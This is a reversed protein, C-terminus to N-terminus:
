PIKFYQKSTQNSTILKYCYKGAELSQIDLVYSGKGKTFDGEYLLTTKLKDLNELELRGREAKPFEYYIHIQDEERIAALFNAYDKNLTGRKFISLMRKYLLYAFILMLAVMVAYQLKEINM